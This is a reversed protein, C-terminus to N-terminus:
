RCATKDRRIGRNTTLFFSLERSLGNTAGVANTAPTASKVIIVADYTARPVFTVNNGQTVVVFGGTTPVSSSQDRKWFNPYPLGLLVVCGKKSRCM